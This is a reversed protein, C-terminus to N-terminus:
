VSAMEGIHSWRRMQMRLSGRKTETQGALPRTITEFKRPPALHIENLSTNKHECMEKRVPASTCTHDDQPRRNPEVYIASAAHNYMYSLVM